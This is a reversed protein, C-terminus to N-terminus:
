GIELGLRAKMESLYQDSESLRKFGQHTKKIWKRLEKEQTRLLFRWWWKPQWHWEDLTKFFPANLDPGGYGVGPTGILTVIHPPITERVTTQMVWLARVGCECPELELRVTKGKVILDYKSRLERLQPAEALTLDAM